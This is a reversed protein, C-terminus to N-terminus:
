AFAIWKVGCVGHTDRKAASEIESDMMYKISITKRFSCIRRIWDAWSERKWERTCDSLLHMMVSRLTYRVNWAPCMFILFAIRCFVVNYHIHWLVSISQIRLCNFLLLLRYNILRFLCCNVYCNRNMVDRIENEQKNVFANFVTRQVKTCAMNTWNVFSLIGLRM